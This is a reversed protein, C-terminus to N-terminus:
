ASKVSNPAIVLEVRRQIHPSKSACQAKENQKMSQKEIEFRDITKDNNGFIHCFLPTNENTIQRSSKTHLKRCRRRRMRDFAPYMQSSDDSGKVRYMLKKKRIKKMSKFPSPPLSSSLECASSLDLSLSDKRDSVVHRSEQKSEANEFFPSRPKRHQAEDDSTIDSDTVEHITALHSPSLLFNREINAIRSPTEHSQVRGSVLAVADMGYTLEEISAYLRPRKQVPVDSLAQLDDGDSRKCEKRKHEHNCNKGRSTTALASRRTLVNYTLLSTVLGVCLGTVVTSSAAVPM